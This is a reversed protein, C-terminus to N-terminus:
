VCSTKPPPSKIVILELVDQDLNKVNMLTQTPVNLVTGVNYKHNEQNNLKLSLTGKIVTMYLNANSNHEPLGEGELFIMHMYHLHEHLIVKEVLKENSQKLKYITEIM